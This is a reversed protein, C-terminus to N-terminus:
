GGRRVSRPRAAAHRRERLSGPLASGGGDGARGGRRRLRLGAERAGRGTLKRAEAWLAQVEAALWPDDAVDALLEQAEDVLAAPERLEEAEIARATEEPGWYADVLEDAHKGLRLGLELYRQTLSM